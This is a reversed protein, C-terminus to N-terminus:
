RGARSLAVRLGGRGAHSSGVEAPVGGRGPPRCVGQGGRSGDRWSLKLPAEDPPVAVLAFCWPCCSAHQAAAEALLEQRDRVAASDAPWSCAPWGGRATWPTSRTRRSGAASSSTWTTAAAARTSGNQSSTGPSAFRLGDLLLRHERWLHVVMQPQLLEAPCRPCTMRIRQELQGQVEALAPHPGVHEELHAFLELARAKGTQRALKHLQEAVQEPTAQRTVLAALAGCRADLPLTDDAILERAARLARRERPTAGVLGFLAVLRAAPEPRTALVLLFGPHGPAVLAALARVTPMQVPLELKGLAPAILEAIVRDPQDHRESLALGVLAQWAVEAPPLALLDDLILDLTDARSGHVGRYSYLGHTLRLHDEYGEVEVGERCVPCVALAAMVGPKLAPAPPLARPTDTNAM